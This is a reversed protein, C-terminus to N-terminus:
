FRERLSRPDIGPRFHTPDTGLHVVRLRRGHGDLGLDGLLSLALDRTWASNTMLVAAGGFIVRATRRHLRSHRIKHQESLLDAAHFFIGYPIHLREHVWRAPYGAPKVNGCHVFRVRHQRALSAARRSWFLVAPLTKARRVGIPLRDITAPFGADVESADPDAPSRFLTTYPFLTSRPPRRIM